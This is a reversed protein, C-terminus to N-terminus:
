FHALLLTQNHSLPPEPHHLDTTFVYFSWAVRGPADETMRWARVVEGCWLKTAVIKLVKVRLPCVVLTSKGMEKCKLQNIKIKMSLDVYM